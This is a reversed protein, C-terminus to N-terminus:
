LQFEGFLKERYDADRAARIIKDSRGAETLCIILQNMRETGNNRGDNFGDTFGDNFGSNFAEDHIMKEYEWSKM